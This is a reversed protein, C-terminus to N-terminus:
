LLVYKFAHLVAEFFSWLRDVNLLTGGQRSSAWCDFLDELQQQLSYNHLDERPETCIPSWIQASKTSGEHHLDGFPSCDSRRGVSEHVKVKAMEDFMTFRM